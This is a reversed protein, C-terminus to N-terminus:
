KTLLLYRENKAHEATHIFDKAVELAMGKTNARITTGASAFAIVQQQSVFYVLVFVAAIIVGIVIVSGSDRRANGGALLSIVISVGALILFLPQSSKVLACSAIEELMISQIRAGGFTEAQLRVRHTTVVLSKGSSEKLISEQPLLNM